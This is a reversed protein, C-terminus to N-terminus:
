PAPILPAYRDHMEQDGRERFAANRIPPPLFLSEVVARSQQQVWEARSRRRSVYSGLASEVTDAGRLVEALVFADEMAMCGGEAM